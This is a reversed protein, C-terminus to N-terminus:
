GANKESVKKLKIIGDKTQKILMKRILPNLLKGIWSKIKYDVEVQIHTQGEEKEFTYISIIDHLGKFENLREGYIIQSKNEMRGISEIDLSYSGVLCTHLSAAKNLGNDKMIIEKIDENWEMRKELNTFNEYILEVSADITNTISIKNTSLGPFSIQSSETLENLFSKIPIYSYDFDGMEKYLDSGRKISIREEPQIEVSSLEQKFQDTILIYENESISNKLLKHALIVEPGHLKQHDKINIKGVEGKHIIFKLTLRTATECAGCKCIRETDYRRLHNHFNIFTHKCQEILDPVSPVDEKFFLVADGEIESVSMDSKDSNIIIELLESIIHRSHNIETKNVFDTFGSIDPIFLLTSKSVTM